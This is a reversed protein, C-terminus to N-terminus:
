NLLLPFSSPPPPNLNKNISDSLRSSGCPLVVQEWVKTYDSHLPSHLPPEWNLAPDLAFVTSRARLVPELAGRSTNCSKEQIPSKSDKLHDQTVLYPPLHQAECALSNQDTCKTFWPFWVMCNNPLIPLDKLLTSNEASKTSLSRWLHHICQNKNTKGLGLPLFCLEEVSLESFKTLQIQHHFSRM